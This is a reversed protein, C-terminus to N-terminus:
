EPPEPPPMELPSVAVNTLQVRNPLEALELPPPMKLLLVFPMTVSALQVRDLLEALYPPPPMQVPVEEVALSALQVRDSFEAAFPPPMRISPPVTVSFLLMTALLGCPPSM